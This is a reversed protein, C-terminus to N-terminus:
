SRPFSYEVDVGTTLKIRVVGIIQQCRQSRARLAYPESATNIMRTYYLQFTIAGCHTKDVRICRDTPSLWAPRRATLTIRFIRDATLDTADSPLPPTPPRVAGPSVM